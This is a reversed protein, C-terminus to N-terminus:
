SITVKETHNELFRRKDMKLLVYELVGGRGEGKSLSTCTVRYCTKEILFVGM